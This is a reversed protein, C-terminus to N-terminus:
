QLFKEIATEHRRGGKGELHEKRPISWLNIFIGFCKDVSPNQPIRRNNKPTTLM